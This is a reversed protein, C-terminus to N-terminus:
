VYVCAYLTGGGGGCVCVIYGGGWVCVYVYLAGGRWCVCVCMYAICM